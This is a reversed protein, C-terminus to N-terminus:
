LIHFVETSVLILSSSPPHHAGPVLASIGTCDAVRCDVSSLWQCVRSSEMGSCTSAQLHSHGQSFGMSSCTGPLVQSGQCLPGWEPAPKSVVGTIPSGCLSCSLFAATLSFSEGHLLEYVITKRPLSRMSSCLEGESSSPAASVIHHVGGMGIPWQPPPPLFFRFHHQFM